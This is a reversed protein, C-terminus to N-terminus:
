DVANTCDLVLVGLSQCKLPFGEDGHKHGMAATRGNGRAGRAM